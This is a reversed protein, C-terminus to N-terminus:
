QWAGQTDRGAGEKSRENGPPDGRAAVYVCACVCVTTQAAGARTGGEAHHMSLDPIQVVVRDRGRRSFGSSSPCFVHTPWAGSGRDHEESGVVGMADQKRPFWARWAHRWRPAPSHGAATAPGPRQATGALNAGKIRRAMAKRKKGEEESSV